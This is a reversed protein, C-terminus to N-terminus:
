GRIRVTTRGTLRNVTVATVRFIRLEDIEYRPASVRFLPPCLRFDNLDIVGDIEADFALGITKLESLYQQAVVTAAGEELNTDIILERASPEDSFVALDERIAYRYANSVFTARNEVPM